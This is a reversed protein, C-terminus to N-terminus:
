EPPRHKRWAELWRSVQRQAADRQFTPYPMEPVHTTSDTRTGMTVHVVVERGAREVTIAALTGPPQMQVHDIFDMQDQLEVGNWAVIEDNTQLGGRAAPEGAVAEVVHAAFYHKDTGTGTWRIGLWGCNPANALFRDFVLAQALARERFRREVDLDRESIELLPGAARAGFRSKIDRTAKERQEITAASLRGALRCLEDRETATLPLSLAEWPDDVAPTAPQTAPPPTPSEDTPKTSSFRPEVPTSRPPGGAITEIKRDQAGASALAGLLLTGLCLTRKGLPAM